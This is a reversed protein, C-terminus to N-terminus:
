TSVLRLVCFGFFFGVACIPSECAFSKSVKALRNLALAAAQLALSICKRHPSLRSHARTAVGSWLRLSYGYDGQAHWHEKAEAEQELAFNSPLFSPHLSPHSGNLPELNRSVCARACARSAGTRLKSSSCLVFTCATAPLTQQEPM